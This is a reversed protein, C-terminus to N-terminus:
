WAGRRFAMAPVTKLMIRLDETFSQRALYELDLQVKRCVDALCTDYHHNVQAWGTIGPRVRQREVYRPVQTRLQAFIRPQEPRPGVVNMDGKLVNFLQPLEDLRYQRLLRGVPTVRPDDWNAWVEDDAGSTTAAMTRFKYIVFPKGGLDQERRHNESRDDPDRRDVGVRLQRYIAPGPSTLKVLATILLMLPAALIVGILAAALNLLRRAGEQRAVAPAAEVEFALEDAPTRRVLSAFDISTM